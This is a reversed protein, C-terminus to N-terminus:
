GLVLDFLRGHDGGEWLEDAGVLGPRVVGRGRSRWFIIKSSFINM